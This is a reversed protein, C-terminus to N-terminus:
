IHILSLGQTFHSIEVTYDREGLPSDFMALMDLRVEKEVERMYRQGLEYLFNITDANTSPVDESLDWASSGVAGVAASNLGVPAGGGGGANRGGAGGVRNNPSQHRTSAAPLNPQQSSSAGLGGSQPGSGMLGRIKEDRRESTFLYGARRLTTVLDRTYETLILERHREAAEIDSLQLIRTNYVRDYQAERAAEIGDRLQDQTKGEPTFDVTITTSLAYFAQLSPPLVAGSLSEASSGEVLMPLLNALVAGEPNRSSTALANTNNLLPGCMSGTKISVPQDSEPERLADFPVVSIVTGMGCVRWDVCGVSTCPEPVQMKQLLELCVLTFARFNYETHRCLAYTLNAYYSSSGPVVAQIFPTNTSPFQSVPATTPSITFQRKYVDSAASSSSLTSRPPRRIM